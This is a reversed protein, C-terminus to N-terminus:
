NRLWRLMCRITLSFTLIRPGVGFVEDPIAAPIQRHELDAEMGVQRSAQWPSHHGPLVQALQELPEDRQRPLWELRVPANTGTKWIPTPRPNNGTFRRSGQPSERVAASLIASHFELHTLGLASPEIGPLRRFALAASPMAIMVGAVIVAV